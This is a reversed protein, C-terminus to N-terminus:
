QHRKRRRRSGRPEDDYEDLARAFAEAAGHSEAERRLSLARLALFRAAVDERPDHNGDAAGKLHQVEEQVVRRVSSDSFYELPVGFLRAIDEKLAASIPKAGTRIQHIFSRTVGLAEGLEADSYRKRHPPHMNHVLWSLAEADDSGDGAHPAGRM